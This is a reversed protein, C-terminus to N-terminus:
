FPSTINDFDLSYEQTSLVFLGYKGRKALSSIFSDESCNKWNKKCMLSIYLNVSHGDTGALPNGALIMGSMNACISNNIAIIKDEPM